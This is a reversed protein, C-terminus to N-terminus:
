KAVTLEASSSGSRGTGQDTVSVLMRYRGPALGSYKLGVLLTESGPIAGPLREVKGVKLGPQEAGQETLLKVDAELPGQGLNYATVPVQMEGQTQLAPEASPLFPQDKLIFPFPVNRQREAAERVMLWKGLPEPFSPPALAVGGKAYDPVTVPVVELSSLGTELNRVLVRVSYEGPDLDLHGYYKLGTQQLLAAAQKMDVGVTQAFFDHVAGAQDLAYAYVELPLMNGKLGATLSKGNAEILVPVYAKGEPARFPAVVVATDLAGGAPGFLEDANRLNREMKSQQALPVPAYYGPRHQIDAGKPGNKLRVKLGHYNGDRKLEEPQVALLYTVSTKELLRGMAVSLDNFNRYVEGGTESAMTTLVSAGSNTARVSGGARLGGIDIAHITCNARKFSQLARQLDNLVKGSGYMDDTNVRFSEGGAISDNASPIASNASDIGEDGLGEAGGGGRGSTSVSGGAGVLLKEDFGESLYVVIKRGEVADLMRGLEAFQRTMSTVRDQQERRETRSTMNYVEDLYTRVADATGLEQRVAPGGVAAGSGLGTLVLGLPDSAAMRDSRAAGLTDLALQLQTRDSTFNLVVNLGAPPAYTVVSALDEPKFDTAVMEKAADRAKLVASPESFSLDFLLMFHRRSATPLSRGLTSASGGGAPQTVELDIVEFGVVPQVKRGDLVEFNDATLGRVPEGDVTVNVPVEIVVVTATEAFNKQAQAAPALLLALVSILSSTSSLRHNWRPSM